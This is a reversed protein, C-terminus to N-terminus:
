KTPDGFRDIPGQCPRSYNVDHQLCRQPPSRLTAISPEGGTEIRVPILKGAATWDSVVTAVEALSLINVLGTSTYHGSENAKRPATEVRNNFPWRSYICSEIMSSLSYPYNSM